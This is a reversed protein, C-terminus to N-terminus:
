ELVEELRERQLLAQLNPMRGCSELSLAICLFMEAHRKKSRWSKEAGCHPWSFSCLRKKFRQMIKLQRKRPGLVHQPSGRIKRVGLCRKLVKSAKKQGRGSADPSIFAFRLDFIKKCRCPPVKPLKLCHFCFLSVVLVFMVTRFLWM